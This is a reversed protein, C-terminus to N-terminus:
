RDKEEVITIFTLIPEKWVVGNYTWHAYKIQGNDLKIVTYRSLDYFEVVEKESGSICKVVYGDEDVIIFESM